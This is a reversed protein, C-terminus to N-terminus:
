RGTRISGGAKLNGQTNGCHISGGASLSGNVNGAHVSGSASLDGGVAGCTVSDGARVSGAVDGKVEVSADSRLEQLVGNNEVEVKVIVTKRADDGGEGDPYVRKGNIYVENNNVSISGGSPCTYTKGGVKVINM